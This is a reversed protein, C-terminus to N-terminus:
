KNGALGMTCMLRFVSFFLIPFKQAYPLAALGLFGSTAALCNVALMSIFHKTIKREPFTQWESVFLGCACGAWRHSYILPGSLSVAVPMGLNAKRSSLTLLTLSSNFSSMEEERNLPSVLLSRFNLCLRSGARSPAKHNMDMNKRHLGEKTEAKEQLGQCHILWLPSLLM